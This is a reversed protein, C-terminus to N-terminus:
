GSLHVYRSFADRLDLIRRLPFQVDRACLFTDDNKGEAGPPGASGGEFLLNESSPIAGSRWRGEELSELVRPDHYGRSILCEGEHRELNLQVHVGYRLDDQAFYKNYKRNSM